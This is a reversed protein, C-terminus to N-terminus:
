DYYYGKSGKQKITNLNDTESDEQGRSM